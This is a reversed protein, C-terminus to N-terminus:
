IISSLIIYFLYPLPSHVHCFFSFWWDTLARYLDLEKYVFLLKFLDLLAHSHEARVIQTGMKALQCKFAYIFILLIFTGVIFLLLIRGSNSLIFFKGNKMKGYRVDLLLPVPMVSIM